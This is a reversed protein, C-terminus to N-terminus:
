VGNTKNPGLFDEEQQMKKQFKIFSQDKDYTLGGQIYEHMDGMEHPAQNNEPANLFEEVEFDDIDIAVYEGHYNGLVQGDERKDLDFLDFDFDDIDLIIEQDIYEVKM